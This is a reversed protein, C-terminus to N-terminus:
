ITAMRTPLPRASQAISTEPVFGAAKAAAIFARRASGVSVLCHLAADLQELAHNRALDSVPWKRRRWYAAQEITRFKQVEGTPSIVFSLPTGWHIEM